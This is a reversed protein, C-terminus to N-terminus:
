IIFIGSFPPVIGIKNAALATADRWITSEGNEARDRVCHLYHRDRLERAM